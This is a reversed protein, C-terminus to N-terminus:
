EHVFFKRWKTFFSSTSSYVPKDDPNAYEVFVNGISEEEEIMSDRCWGSKCKGKERYRFCHIIYMLIVFVCVCPVVVALVILLNTLIPYISEMTYNEDPLVYEPDIIINEKVIDSHDFTGPSVSMELTMGVLACMLIVTWFMRETMRVM